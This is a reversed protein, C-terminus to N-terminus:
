LRGSVTSALDRVGFGSDRVGLRIGHELKDDCSFNLSLLCAGLKGERPHTAARGNM